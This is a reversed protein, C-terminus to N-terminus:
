ELPPIIAAVQLLIEAPKLKWNESRKSVAVWLDGHRPDTLECRSVLSSLEEPTGNEKLFKFYYAWVDGIDSNSNLARDLWERCRKLKREFWFLKAIELRVFADDECAKIADLSKARKKPRSELQIALAWLQGARPCDNLASALLKSAFVDNGSDFELRISQIWLLSNKPITSRALELKARAKHVSYLRKELLAALIWLTPSKPCCKIGKEFCELAETFNQKRQWHQGLMIWLKPFDPFLKVAQSLLILEAEFCNLNRELLASKMWIRASGVRERATGLLDRAREYADIDCEVKVAALWIQESDPNAVFAGALIKRASDIDGALWKERAGMLWLVEADPCNLVATALMQDLLDQTGHAKELMAAEYWLEERNPFTELLVRYIERATNFSGKEIMHKADTQWTARRDRDEVGIAITTRVIAQCTRLCGSKESKQAEELWHERDIVVNQAALYKVAKRIVLDVTETNGKKDELSAAKIWISPENPITKRARNLVKKATEYDELDALALWMEVSEPVCEVARRLLLKADEPNEELDIAEKWLKVSNSVNELAKRLVAIKKSTETELRAAQIWIQVSRPVHSVAKALIAKANPGAHLRAAEIWVDENHPCNECGQMIISRAEALQGATEELRAYSLWGAASTPDTNTLSKVLMRAKKIDSIEADSSIRVSSLSTLYGKPDVVTQGSVSDSMEDLKIGLVQDRAKGFSNLDALSPAQSPTMTGAIPDISSALSSKSRISDIISDPVPTMQDERKNIRKNRRSFDVPDPLNLWEEVSVEKLGAKVDSFQESLKVSKTKQREMEEREHKERKEKRRELMRRDVAEYTHDALRDEEDYPTSADFLSGSYGAFKDFQYDSLDEGKAMAEQQIIDQIGMAGSAISGVVSRARNLSLNRGRGAGFAQPLSTTAAHAPGLDSRTTFGVAGRGLGAVYGAPAPGFDVRTPKPTQM